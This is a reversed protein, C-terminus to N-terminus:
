AHRLLTLLRLSDLLNAFLSVMLRASHRYSIARIYSVVYFNLPTRRGVPTLVHLFVGHDVGRPGNACTRLALVGPNCPLGATLTWMMGSVNSNRCLKLAYDPSEQKHQRHEKNSGMHAHLSQWPSNHSSDAPSSCECRGKIRSRRGSRQDRRAQSIDGVM